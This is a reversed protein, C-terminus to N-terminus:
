LQNQSNYLRHIHLVLYMEEQNTLLFGFRNQIYTNVKEACKAEDQCSEIIHRHLFENKENPLLSSNLLRKALLQIHTVARIYSVDEINYVLQFHYKIINLIDSTIQSVRQAQQPLVKSGQANIFHLAINAVESPFLTVGLEKSVLTLAYQGIEIEEGYLIELESLDVLELDIQKEFRSVAFSIHDTLSLYLYDPFITSLIENAYEIVKKSIEFYVADVKEALQTMNKTLLDGDSIFIKEAEDLSITCGVKTRFGIGKAMFIIDQKLENEVLILSNNLIKKVEM